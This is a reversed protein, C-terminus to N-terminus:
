RAGPKLWSLREEGDRRQGFDGDFEFVALAAVREPGFDRALLSRDDGGIDGAREFRRARNELPGVRRRERRLERRELRARRMVILGMGLRVASMALRDLPQLRDAAVVCDCPEVLLPAGDELRDVVSRPAIQGQPGADRRRLLRQPEKAVPM